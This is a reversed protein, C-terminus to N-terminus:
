QKGIPKLCFTQINLIAFNVLVQYLNFINKKTITM